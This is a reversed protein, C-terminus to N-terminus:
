IKTLRGSRVGFSLEIPATLLGLEILLMQVEQNLEQDTTITSTDYKLNDEAFDKVKMMAKMILKM